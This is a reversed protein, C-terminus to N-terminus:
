EQDESKQSSDAKGYHYMKKALIEAIDFMSNIIKEVDKNEEVGLRECLSRNAEYVEKYLESCEKGEAFENEIDEFGTECFEDMNYSGNMLHYIIDERKETM